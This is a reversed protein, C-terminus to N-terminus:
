AFIGHQIKGIEDRVLQIGLNTDLLSKPTNDNLALCPSEIWQNFSTEDGFVFVGLNYLNAIDIIKETYVPDITKSEKKYRQLTRESLHLFQSWDLFSFPIRKTINEFASFNMGNKILHILDLISSSPAKGYIAMPESVYNSDSM